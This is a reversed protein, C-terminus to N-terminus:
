LKKRKGKFIIFSNSFSTPNKKITFNLVITILSPCTNKIPTNPFQDIEKVNPDEHPM